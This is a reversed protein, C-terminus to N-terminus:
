VAKPKTKPLNANKLSYLEVKHGRASGNEFWIKKLVLDRKRSQSNRKAKRGFNVM